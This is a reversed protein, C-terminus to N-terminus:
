IYSVVVHLLLCHPFRIGTLAKRVLGQLIIELEQGGVALRKSLRDHFRLFMFDERPPLQCPLM